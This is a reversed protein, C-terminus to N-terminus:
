GVEGSRAADPSKSGEVDLAQQADCPRAVADGAVAAIRDVADAGLVDVAGDVVMAAGGDVVAAFLEPQLVAAYPGVGWAGVALGFTKDLGCASFPGVGAGELVGFFSFLVEFGPGVSM